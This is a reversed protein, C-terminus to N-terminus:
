YFQRWKSNNIIIRIMFELLPTKWFWSLKGSIPVFPHPHTSAPFWRLWTCYISYAKKQVRTKNKWSLGQWLSCSPQQSFVTRNFISLHPIKRPYIFFPPFFTKVKNAIWIIHSPIYSCCFSLSRDRFLFRCSWYWLLRPLFMEYPQWEIAQISYTWPSILWLPSNQKDELQEILLAQTKTLSISYKSDQYM